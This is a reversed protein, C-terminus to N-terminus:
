IPRASAIGALALAAVAYRIAREVDHAFNFRVFKAYIPAQRDVDRGVAQLAHEVRDTATEAAGDLWDLTALLVLADARQPAAPASAVAQEALSRAEDFDGIASLARAGGLFRRALGAADDGATARRAAAFLEAAADHAGRTAAHRAAREIVGAAEADVGLVSLSLHVGATEVDTAVSALLRHLARRRDAPATEYAASALLPHTFRVRDGDCTLVGAVEAEALAAEVEVPSSMVDRLTTVRPDPSAAVALTAERAAASLSEIQSAVLERLSSPLAPPEHLRIAAPGHALTRAIELAFYPNGGSATVLRSLVPRPFAVGLRDHILHHLSGLSLPGVTVRRVQEAPLARALDLPWPGDPEARM